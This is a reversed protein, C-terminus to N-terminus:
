ENCGGLAKVVKVINLHAPCKALCRGCGVCSYIGDNNVPYYVLKHMFRQRFRELQSTRPNGHAMKTFDSFMCSDWCRFRKIGHGTDFERIDYCQCTPCVFTCTGCGLCPASLEAWKESDFFKKTTDGKFADLSLGALPAKEMIANVADVADDVAKKDDADADSLLAAAKDLAASGKETLSELYLCDGAIHMMVDGVAMAPGIGFATCFCTEAPASCALTFIVGHERRAAYFTDVPDKLFVRDLIDLSKVDCPRAGFVIFEEGDWRDDVVNIKKGERMFSVINESQPFFFEKPSKVTNVADLVVTGGKQWKAYASGADTAEPAYVTATDCLADILTSVASLSIKKM